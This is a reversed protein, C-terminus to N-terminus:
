QPPTAPLRRPITFPTPAGKAGKAKFHSAFAIVKGFGILVNSSRFPVDVILLTQDLPQYVLPLIGIVGERQEVKQVVGQAQEFAV